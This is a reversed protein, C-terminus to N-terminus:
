WYGVAETRNLLSWDYAYAYEFHWHLNQVEQKVKKAEQPRTTPGSTPGSRFHYPRPGVKRYSAGGSNQHLHIEQV